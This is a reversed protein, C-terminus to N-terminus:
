FTSTDTNAVIEEVIKHKKMDDSETKFYDFFRKIPANNICIDARSM